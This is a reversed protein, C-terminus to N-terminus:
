KFIKNKERIEQVFEIEEKRVREIYVEVNKKIGFLKITFEEIDSLVIIENNSELIDLNITNNVSILDGKVFTSVFM